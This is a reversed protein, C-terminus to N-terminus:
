MLQLLPTRSYYTLLCQIKALITVIVHVLGYYPEILALSDKWVFLRNANSVLFLKFLNDMLFIISWAAFM